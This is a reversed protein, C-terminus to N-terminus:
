SLTVHASLPSARGNLHGAPPSKSRTLIGFDRARVMGPAKHRRWRTQRASVLSGVLEPDATPV